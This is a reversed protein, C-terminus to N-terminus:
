VQWILGLQALFYNFWQFFVVSDDRSSHWRISVQNPVSDKYPGDPFTGNHIVVAPSLGSEQPCPIILAFKKEGMSHLDKLERWMNWLANNRTAPKIVDLIRPTWMNCSILQFPFNPYEELFWGFTLYFDINEDSQWQQEWVKRQLTDVGILNLFKRVIKREFAIKRESERRDKWDQRNETLRLLRDDKHLM